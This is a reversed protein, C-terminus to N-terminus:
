WYFNCVSNILLSKIHSRRELDATICIKTKLSIWLISMWSHNTFSDSMLLTAHYLFASVFIHVICAQCSDKSNQETNIKNSYHHKIKRLGHKIIKM